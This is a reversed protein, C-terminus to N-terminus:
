DNKWTCDRYKKAKYKSDIKIIDLLGFRKGTVGCRKCFMRDFIRGRSMVSMGNTYKEWIHDNNSKDLIIVDVLIRKKEFPKLTYNFTKIIDKAWEEPSDVQRNYKEEWIEEEGENKVKIIFNM